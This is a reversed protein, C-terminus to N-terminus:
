YGVMCRRLMLLTNYQGNNIEHRASEIFYEGDFQGVGALTTVQGAAVLPCGISMEVEVQFKHYNKDRVHARAKRDDGGAGDYGELGSPPPPTDKGNARQGGSPPAVGTGEWLWDTNWNINDKWDSPLDDGATFQHKQTLGSQMDTNAVIGTKTTDSVRLYFKGGSMRYVTTDLGPAGDGYVITFASSGSELEQPDNIVITGNVVKMTLKADDCRKKIFHLGSEEVQEVFVYRPNYSANYQPEPMNNDSVIQEIIDRLTTNEFPRSEKSTKIHSDAPVSTARITVTHEPLDFEVSDIWFTGCDLSLSTGYPYYWRDCIISAQVQAGADPMWSNIFNRDRDALEITLDDAKEGDCNDVYVMRLFYPALSSYYDTGGGALAIRPRATRAQILGLGALQPLLDPM